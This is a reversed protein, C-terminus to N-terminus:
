VSAPLGPLGRTIHLAHNTPSSPSIPKSSPLIGNNSGRLGAGSARVEGVNRATLSKVKLKHHMPPLPTGVAFPFDWRRGEGKGTTGAVSDDSFHSSSAPTQIFKIGCHWGFRGGTASEEARPYLLRPVVLQRKGLRQKNRCRAEDFTSTSSRQWM